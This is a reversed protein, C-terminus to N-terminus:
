SRKIRKSEQQSIKSIKHRKSENKSVKVQKLENLWANVSKALTSETKQLEAYVTSAAIEVRRVKVLKSENQSRIKGCKVQKEACTCYQM